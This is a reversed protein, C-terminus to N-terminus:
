FPFLRRAPRSLRLPINQSFFGYLCGHSCYYDPFILVAQCRHITQIHRLPYTNDQQRCPHSVCLCHVSSIPFILFVQFIYDPFLLYLYLFVLLLIILLNKLISMIILDTLLRIMIMLIYRMKLIESFM